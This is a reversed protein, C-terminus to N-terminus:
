YFADQFHEITNKFNIAIIDFRINKEWNTEKIYNEAATLISKIQNNSVFEEPYGFSANKRFKVEVFVLTGEQILIMDIESRKFRYNQEKLIYGKKLLYDLALQEARNGAEKSLSTM